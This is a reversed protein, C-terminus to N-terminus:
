VRLFYDMTTQKGIPTENMLSILILIGKTARSFHGKHFFEHLMLVVHEVEKAIFPLCNPHGLRM